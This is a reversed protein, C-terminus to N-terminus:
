LVRDIVLYGVTYTDPLRLVHDPYVSNRPTLRVAPESIQHGLWESVADLQLGPVDFTCIFRGDPALQDLHHQILVRHDANVEELTSINLVVDFAEVWDAPPPQRIDWITTDHLTSPRLDSHTVNQHRIDLYTKFVIHIDQFGWCANHVQEAWKAPGIKRLAFPYEYVRSWCLAHEFALNHRDTPTFYGFSEVVFRHGDFPTLGDVTGGESVGM